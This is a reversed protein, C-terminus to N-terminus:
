KCYGIELSGAYQKTSFSTCATSGPCEGTQAKHCTKYCTGGFTSGPVCYYGVACLSPNAALSSTDTCDVGQTGAATTPGLCWAYHDTDPYCNVGAGCPAYGGTANQPNVPDCNLTCVKDNPINVAPSQSADQLQYCENGGACDASPAGVNACFPTCVGHVCSSGKRCQGSGTCLNWNATTGTAVCVMNGSTDTIDCSQTASCGCQPFVVCASAAPPTCAMALDPLRALDAPPQALDAPPQALDALPQALDAPATQALDDSGSGGGAGLDAFGNGGTGDTALDPSGNAGVLPKGPNTPSACGAAAVLLAAVACIKV